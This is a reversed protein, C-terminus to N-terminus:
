KCVTKIPFLDLYCEKNAYEPFNTIHFICCYDWDVKCAKNVINNVCGETMPKSERFYTIYSHECTNKGNKFWEFKYKKTEMKASNLTLCYYYYCGYRLITAM